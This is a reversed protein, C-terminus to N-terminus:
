AAGRGGVDEPLGCSVRQRRADALRADGAWAAGGAGWPAAAAGQPAAAAAGVRRPPRAWLGDAAALPSVRVGGQADEVRGLAASSPRDGRRQEVCVCVCVRVCVQRLAGSVASRRAHPATM